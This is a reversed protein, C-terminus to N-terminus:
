PVIVTDGSELVINQQLEAGKEVKSYDFSYTVEKGAAKRLIKIENAAAFPTLGGVMSLAQMVDVRRGLTFEGAKNVKGVVYIKYSAAKLVAVSVVPKPIFKTLRETLEQQLQQATKGAAQLDGVLPFSVGGDPRVLAEKKLGEEKWVTIELVDEAGIQYDASASHKGENAPASSSTASPRGSRAGESKDPTTAECAASILAAIALAATVDKRM